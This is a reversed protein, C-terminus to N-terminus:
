IFVTKMSSLRFYLVFFIKSIVQLSSCTFPISFYLSNNYYSLQLQLPRGCVLSTDGVESNPKTRLRADLMAEYEEKTDGLTTFAIIYM